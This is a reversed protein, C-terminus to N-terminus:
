EGPAAPQAPQRQLKAPILPDATRRIVLAPIHLTHAIDPWFERFLDSFADFGVNIAAKQVTPGFGRRRQPYYNNSIATAALSALWRAANFTYGGSDKRVVLIRTLAYEGRQMFSGQQMRFYRPDTHLMSSFLFTGFFEGAFDTGVIAGFRRSYGRAGGGFASPENQAQYYLATAAEGMLAFPDVTDKLFLRFKDGPSYPFRPSRQNATLVYYSNQRPLPVNFALNGSSATAPAAQAIPVTTANASFRVPSTAASSAPQASATLPAASSTVPQRDAQERQRRLAALRALVDPSVDEIVEQKAWPHVANAATAQQQDSFSQAGVLDSSALCLAAACLSRHSKKM